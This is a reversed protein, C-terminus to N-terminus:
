NLKTQGIMIIKLILIDDLYKIIILRFLFHILTNTDVLQSCVNEANVSNIEIENDLFCLMKKGFTNIIIYNFFNKNM